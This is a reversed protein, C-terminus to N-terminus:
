YLPMAGQAQYGRANNQPAFGANQTRPAFGQNAPPASPGQFGANVPAQFGRVPASGQFGQNVPAQFGRNVPAVPANQYGQNPNMGNAVDQVTNVFQGQQGGQQAVQQPAALQINQGQPMAVNAYGFAPSVMDWEAAQRTKLTETWLAYDPHNRVNWNAPRLGMQVEQTVTKDSEEGFVIDEITFAVKSTQIIQGAADLRLSGDPNYNNGLYSHPTCMCDFAKGVPLSKACIYALKGWAVMRFTDSRGPTGDQNTGKNSNAYVPIICRANVFKGNNFHAPYLTLPGAVRLGAAFSKFMSIARM